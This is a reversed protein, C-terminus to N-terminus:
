AETGIKTKYRNCVSSLEAVLMQCTQDEVFKINMKIIVRTAQEYSDIIQLITTDVKNLTDLMDVVIDTVATISPYQFFAGQARLQTLSDLVRDYVDDPKNEIAERIGNLYKDAIPSFDVVNDEIAKQAREVNEKRIGGGGVKQKLKNKPQVIRAM